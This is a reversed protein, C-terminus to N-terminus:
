ETLEGSFIGSGIQESINRGPAPLPSAAAGPSDLFDAPLYVPIERSRLILGCILFHLRLPFEM